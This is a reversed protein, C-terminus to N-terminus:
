HELVERLHATVQSDNVVPRSTQLITLEAECQMAAAIGTAIQEMRRSVLAEMEPSYTRITGALRAEPPIVNKADGAHFMTISVVGGGLAGVRGGGVGGGGGGVGVGGGM